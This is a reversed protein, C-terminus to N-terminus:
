TCANILQLLAVEWALRPQVLGLLNRQLQDLYRLSRADRRQMWLHQQWWSILWLQQEVDLVESVEKALSLVELASNPLLSLRGRVQDPIEKFRRRHELLAGPSGAAMSIIEISDSQHGCNLRALVREMAEPKLYQFPIRHCRSRITSALHSPACTLLLFLGAGPEELTKLLANAAGETMRETEEIVVLGRSSEIPQQALFRTVDRIQDLRLQPPSRRYSSVKGAASLPVTRGQYMYTPEVWLLDPHNRDELRRRQQRPLIPSARSVSLVGELFRLAALRRGVGDPGAFLYAPALRGQDLAAQLLVVALPQGILDDFLEPSSKPPSVM